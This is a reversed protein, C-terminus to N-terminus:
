PKPNLIYVFLYLIAILTLLNFYILTIGVTKINEIYSLVGDNLLLIFQISNFLLNFCFIHCAKLFFNFVM